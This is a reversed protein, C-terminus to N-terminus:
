ISIGRHIRKIPGSGLTPDQPFITSTRGSPDTIKDLIVTVGWGQRFAVLDIASRILDYARMWIYVVDDPPNFRNLECGITIASKEVKMDFVMNLGVEPAQWAVQSLGSVEIIAVEPLVRGTLTVKVM